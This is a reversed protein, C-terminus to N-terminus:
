ALEKQIDLIEILMLIESLAAKGFGVREGGRNDAILGRLYVTALDGPWVTYLKEMIHPFEEISQPVVMAVATEYWVPTMVNYIQHLGAANAEFEDKLNLKRYIELLYLWHNICAKPQAEITLKLHAIADQHRNVSLLLKAEALTSDLRAEVDKAAKAQLKVEPSEEEPIKPKLYGGFDGMTEQISAHMKTAVFNMKAFMYERYKKLAFVSLIVLLGLVLAVKVLDTNLYNIWSSAIQATEVKTPTTNLNKFIKKGTTANDIVPNNNATSNSPTISPVNAPVSNSVISTVSDAVANNKTGLNNEVSNNSPNNIAPKSAVPSNLTKEWILKLGDLKTELFIIKDKLILLQKKLLENKSVWFQYEEKLKSPVSDLVSEINTTIQLRHKAPKDATSQTVQTNKSLSKLTPVLLLTPKEFREAASLNPQTGTNLRLTKSIFLQQMVVNKPYFLRAVDNLSEGPLVPWVQSNALTLETQLGSDIALTNSTEALVKGGGNLVLLFVLIFKLKMTM